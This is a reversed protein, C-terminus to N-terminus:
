QVTWALNYLDNLWMIGTSYLIAYILIQYFIFFLKKDQAIYAKGVDCENAQLIFM